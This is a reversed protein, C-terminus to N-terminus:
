VRSRAMALVAQAAAARCHTDRLILRDPVIITRPEPVRPAELVARIAAEGMHKTHIRVSSLRDCDGSRIASDGYGIVAFDRGAKRGRAELVRMAPLARSDTGAFLATPPDKLALMREFAEASQRALESEEPHFVLAPDHAIGGEALAAQYGLTKEHLRDPHEGPAIYAIRRHGLNILYSVARRAGDFAGDLVGIVPLDRFSSDLLVVPGLRLKLLSLILAPDKDQVVVYGSFEKLRSWEPGPGPNPGTQWLQEQVVVEGSTGLKRCAHLAANIMEGYYTWGDSPLWERKAMIAIRMKGRGAAAEVGGQPAAYTGSGHRRVIVGRLELAELAKQLTGRSIGLDESMEREGPLRQGWLARRRILAEIDAMAKERRHPQCGRLGM